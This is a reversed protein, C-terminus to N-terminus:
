KGMRAKGEANSCCITIKKVPLLTEKEEERRFLHTPKRLHGMHPGAWGLRKNKFPIRKKKRRKQTPDPFSFRSRSPDSTHHTSTGLSFLSLETRSTELRLNKDIEGERTGQDGRPSITSQKDKTSNDIKPHGPRSPAPFPTFPWFAVSPKKGLFPPSPPPALPSFLPCRPPSSLPLVLGRGYGSSSLRGPQM